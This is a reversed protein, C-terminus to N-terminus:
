ARRVTVRSGILSRYRGGWSDRRVPEWLLDEYVVFLEGPAIEAASVGQWGPATSVIVEHSFGDGRGDLSIAVRNDPRGYCAVLLGNSM